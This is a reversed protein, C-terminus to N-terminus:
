QEKSNKLGDGLQMALNSLDELEEESLCSWPAFFYKDTLAEAEDRIRKGEAALQYERGKEEVWGRKEFELLDRGYIEIPIKRYGVKELLTEISAASDSHWLYTLIEWAHGEVGHAHWTAIHADDRYGSLAGFRVVFDELLCETGYRGYNEHKHSIYFHPPPESTALSAEVLRELYGLLKQEREDSIPKLSALSDGAARWIKRAVDLGKESRAYGGNGDSVLYGKQAASAFREENVRPLGYPFMRLYDATTFTEAGFLWIAAIWTFYGSELAFEEAAKDMAPYGYDGLIDFSEELVSWISKLNM